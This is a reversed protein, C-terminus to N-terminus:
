HGMVNQGVYGGVKVTPRIGQVGCAARVGQVGYLLRVGQVGHALGSVRFVM